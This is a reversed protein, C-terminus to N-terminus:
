EPISIGYSKLLEDRIKLERQVRQLEKILKQKEENHDTLAKVLTDKRIGVIKDANELQKAMKVCEEALNNREKQILDAAHNLASCLKKLYRIKNDKDFNEFDEGWVIQPARGPDDPLNLDEVKVEKIKM